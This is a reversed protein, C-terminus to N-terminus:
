RLMLGLGLGKQRLPWSQIQDLEFDAWSWCSKLRAGVVDEVVGM